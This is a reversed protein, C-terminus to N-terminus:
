ASDLAAVLLQRGRKALFEGMTFKKMWRGIKAAAMAMM